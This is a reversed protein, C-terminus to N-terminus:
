GTFAVVVQSIGQRCVQLPGVLVRQVKSGTLYYFIDDTEHFM